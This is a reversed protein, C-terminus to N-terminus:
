RLLEVLELVSYWEDEGVQIEFWGELQVTHNEATQPGINLRAIAPAENYRNIGNFVLSYERRPTVPAPAEAQIVPVPEPTPAPEPTPEPAPAPEEPAPAPVPPPTPEPEPEEVGIAALMTFCVIFLMLLTIRM